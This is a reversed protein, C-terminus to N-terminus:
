AVVGARSSAKQHEPWFQSLLFCNDEFSRFAIEKTQYYAGDLPDMAPNMRVSGSPTRQDWLAVTTRIFDKHLKTSVLKSSPIRICGHWHPNVEHKELFMIGEIRQEPRLTGPRRKILKKEIDLFTQKLKLVMIDRPVMPLNTALTIYVNCGLARAFDGYAWRLELLKKNRSVM